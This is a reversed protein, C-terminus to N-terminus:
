VPDARNPDARGSRGTGYGANGIQRGPLGLPAGDHPPNHAPLSGAAAGSLEDTALHQEREMANIPQQNHRFDSM